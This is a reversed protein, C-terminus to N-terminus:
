KKGGGYKKLTDSGTKYTTTLTGTKPNFGVTADKGIFTQRERGQKDTRIKGVNLPNQLADKIWSTNVGRQKSREMIHFSVNNVTKGTSITIGKLKEVDDKIAQREAEAAEKRQERWEDFGYTENMKERYRRVSEPVNKVMDKLECRCNIVQEPAGNPDGPFRLGNSFTDNYDVIEGTVSAHDDRVRSDMRSLWQKQMDIGMDVAENGAM